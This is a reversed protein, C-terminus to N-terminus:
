TVELLQQAGSMVSGASQPLGRFRSFPGPVANEQLKSMSQLLGHRLHEGGINTQNLHLKVTDRMM